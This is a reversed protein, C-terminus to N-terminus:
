CHGSIRKVNAALWFKYTKGASACYNTRAGSDFRVQILEGHSVCNRYVVYARVGLWNSAGCKYGAADAPAATVTTTAAVGTLATLGLTATALGRKMTHM